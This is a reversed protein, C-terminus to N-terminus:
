HQFLACKSEKVFLFYHASRHFVKHLFSKHEVETKIFILIDDLYAIVNKDLM